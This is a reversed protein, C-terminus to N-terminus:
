HTVDRKEANRLREALTRLVKHAVPPIDEVVDSFARGNMVLLHMDTEATVTASRTGGDLLSMEGFFSGPELTAVRRGRASATARGEAIVFCEWGTDGERTLVKGETCDVEDVAAAIRRLETKTCASFLDVGRLLAVKADKTRRKFRM